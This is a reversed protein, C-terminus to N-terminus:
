GNNYRYVGTGSVIENQLDTIDSKLATYSQVGFQAPKVISISGVSISKGSQKENVDKNLVSDLARKAVLKTALMTINDPAVAYGATYTIELRKRGTIPSFNGLLLAVEGRSEYVTFHTDETKVAYNPYATSAIDVTAYNFTDISIIPSHKLQIVEEGDYDLDDTYQTSQFVRGALQDIQASAEDIWRDVTALTPTTGAGFAVDLRLEEQVNAAITYTSAM